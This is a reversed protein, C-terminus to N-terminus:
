ASKRKQNNAVQQLARFVHSCLVGWSNASCEEGTTSVCIATKDILNIEVIRRDKHKHNFESGHPTVRAVIRDGLDRTRCWMLRSRNVIHQSASTTATIRIMAVEVHLGQLRM